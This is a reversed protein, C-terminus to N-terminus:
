PSPVPVAGTTQLILRAVTDPADSMPVHGCGPLPVHRADPLRERARDAQRPLLIRDKTGWAVTVPVSPRGQFAYRNASRAVARFGRGDRLAVADGVLRDLDLRGPQTMLTGFTLRRVFGRRLAQRLVPAPGRTSARLLSLIVLARRAEARTFFGAPSFATASAAVGAAALELSIAGGLSNGAVHPREIGLEALAVLVGAVAGAMDTPMGGDPVASRGFGPLDVAYVDHHRALEDLVPQWAQWRHGIGHLLVLPEGAGRREYNISM